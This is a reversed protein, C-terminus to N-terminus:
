EWIKQLEEDVSEIPVYMQQPSIEYWRVIGEEDIIFMSHTDVPGMDMGGPVDTVGYPKGVKQNKDYLVPININYKQVIQESFAIPDTTIALIM